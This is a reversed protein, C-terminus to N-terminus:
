DGYIPLKMGLHPALSRESELWWLFMIRRVVIYVVGAKERLASGFEAIGM